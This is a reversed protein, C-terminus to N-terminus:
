LLDTAYSVEKRALDCIAEQIAVWTNYYKMTKQLDGIRGRYCSNFCSTINEVLKMNADNLTLTYAKAGFQTPQDPYLPVAIVHIAIEQHASDAVWYVCYDNSIKM